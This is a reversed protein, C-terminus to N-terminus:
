ITCLSFYNLYWISAKLLVFDQHLTNRRCTGASFTDTRRLECRFGHPRATQCSAQKSSSQPPLQQAAHKFVDTLRISGSSGAAKLSFSTKLESGITWCSWQASCCLSSELMLVHLCESSSVSSPELWFWLIFSWDVFSKHPPPLLASSTM